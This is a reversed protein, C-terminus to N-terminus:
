FRRLCSVSIQLSYSRAMAEAESMEVELDCPAQEEVCGADFDLTPVDAIGEFRQTRGLVVDPSPNRLTKSPCVQCHLLCLIPLVLKVPTPILLM